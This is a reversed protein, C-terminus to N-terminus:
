PMGKSVNLRLTPRGAYGPIGQLVQAPPLGFLALAKSQRTLIRKCLDANEGWGACSALLPGTLGDVVEIGRCPPHSEASLPLLHRHTDAIYPPWAVTVCYLTM